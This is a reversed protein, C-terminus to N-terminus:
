ALFEFVKLLSGEYMSKLHPKLAQHRDSSRWEAASEESDFRLVMVMDQPNETDKLLEAKIYGETQAMAPRYQSKFFKEFDAEKDPLVHFTVHREIVNGGGM